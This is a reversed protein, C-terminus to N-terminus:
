VGGPGCPMVFVHACSHHIVTLGTVIVPLVAMPAPIAKALHGFNPALVVFAVCQFKVCSPRRTEPYIPRGPWSGDASPRQRACASVPNSSSVCSQLSLLVCHCRSWFDFCIEGRFSGEIHKVATLVVAVGHLLCDLVSLQSVLGPWSSGKQSVLNAMSFRMAFAKEKATDCSRGLSQLRNPNRSPPMLEPSHRCPKTEPHM